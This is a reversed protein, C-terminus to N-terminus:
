KIFYMFPGASPYPLALAVLTDMNPSRHFLSKFGSDFFAHNVAMVIFALIM